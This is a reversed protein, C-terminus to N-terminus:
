IGGEMARMVFLEFKYKTENSFPIEMGYTFTHYETLMRVLAIKSLRRVKKAAEIKQDNQGSLFLSYIATISKNIDTPAPM